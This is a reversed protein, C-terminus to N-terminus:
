DYPSGITLCLQTLSQNVTVQPDTKKGLRLCFNYFGGKLQSAEFLRDKYYTNGKGEIIVEDLKKPFFVKVERAELLIKAGSFGETGLSGTKGGAVGGM